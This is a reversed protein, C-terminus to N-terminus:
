AVAQWWGDVQPADDVDVAESLLERLREADRPAAIRINPVIQLMALDWMGHQSDLTVASFGERAVVEAVMPAPLGCWGTHVTKGARLQAALSFGPLSAM